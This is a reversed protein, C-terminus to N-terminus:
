TRYDANIKIYEYSLDNTIIYDSFTGSNLDITIEFSDRKMIELAKEENLHGLGFGKEMMCVDEFYIDTEYPDIEAGSRGAAAIIRGWNPDEGFLATKFLNSHAISDVIKFADEYSKANVANIKVVKTAGEGDRVIERSLYILAKDLMNQFAFSKEHSDIKVKSLGNAMLLVTDNTSTDGDVTIKNFSKNVARLLFNKIDNEDIEADTLAYCLMTAMDPRIMGAGKAIALLTVEKGNIKEKLVINKKFKDTTMIASNFDDFDNKLNSKLTKLNSIIKEVPLQQGIVGTSGVQIHSFDIGLIKATEEVTIRSNEIGQKGTACNANGSNVIVASCKKSNINEKSVVVPAAVAKNKTFVAAANSPIESVILGLDFLNNKKIGCSIGAAKFGKCQLKEM